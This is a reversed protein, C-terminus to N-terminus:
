RNYTWKFEYYNNKDDFWLQDILEDSIDNSLNMRLVEDADQTRYWTVLEKREDKAINTARKNYTAFYQWKRADVDFTRLVAVKDAFCFYLHAPVFHYGTMYPIQNLQQALEACKMGKREDFTFYPAADDSAYGQGKVDLVYVAQRLHDILLFDYFTADTTSSFLQLREPHKDCMTRAILEGCWEKSAVSKSPTLHYMIEKQRFAYDAAELNRKWGRFLDPITSNSM